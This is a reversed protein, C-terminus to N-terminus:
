WFISNVDFLSRRGFIIVRGVSTRSLARLAEINIDSHKLLNMPLLLLRAADLAVNGSGIIAVDKVKELNFELCSYKPDGNIWGIFSESSFCLNEGPIALKRSVNAGTCIISADYYKSLDQLSFTTGVEVSGLFRFNPSTLVDAFAKSTSRIEPHDPAVGYRLLGYPFCSKEFMDLHLAGNRKLLKDAVYFGAPGSGVIAIRAM